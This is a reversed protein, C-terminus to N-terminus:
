YDPFPPLFSYWHLHITTSINRSSQTSWLGHISFEELGTHIFWDQQGIEIGRSLQRKWVQNNNSSQLSNVKPTHYHPPYIGYNVMLSSIPCPILWMKPSIRWRWEADHTFPTPKLIGSHEWEMMNRWCGGSWLFNCILFTFPLFLSSSFGTPQISKLTLSSPPQPPNVLEKLTLFTNTSSILLCKMPFPKDKM